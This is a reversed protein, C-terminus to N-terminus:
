FVRHSASASSTRVIVRPTLTDAHKHEGYVNYQTQEFCHQFFVVCSAPVRFEDAIFFYLEWSKIRRYVNTTCQQMCLWIAVWLYQGLRYIENFSELIISLYVILHQVLRFPFAEVSNMVALHSIYYLVHSSGSDSQPKDAVSNNRFGWTFCKLSVAAYDM